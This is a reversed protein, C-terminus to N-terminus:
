NVGWQTLNAQHLHPFRIEKTKINTHKSIAKILALTKELRPEILNSYDPHSDYGIYVREPKIQDLIIQKMKKLHFTMIPEITIVKHPHELEKFDKVRKSPAPALSVQRAIHDKDTELTICLLVNDPFKFGHFYSPNKTQFFFTRDQNRKTVKVAEQMAHKPCFSIDSSAGLWIFKDGTTHYLYDELRDLHLHPVYHYCDICNQKQRKM